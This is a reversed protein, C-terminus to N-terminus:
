LFKVFIDGMLLDDSFSKLIEQLKDSSVWNPLFFQFEDGGKLFNFKVPGIMLIHNICKEADDLFERTFEFSIFPIKKSLGKIVELEYGEVDIKCFKPPGYTQIIKDLTTIEVKQTKTWKFKNSFRGETKWKESLTSITNIEECVSLEGYGEKEGVAKGIIVVDKNKKFEKFLKKLCSEQPEICVVKAGLQLLIKTYLGINAGIDFCLDGKKIFQSYFLVKRKHDKINKPKYLEIIQLIKNLPERFRIKFLDLFKTILNLLAKLQTRM